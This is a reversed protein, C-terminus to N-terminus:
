GMWHKHLGHTQGPRKIGTIELAAPVKDAPIEAWEGERLFAGWTQFGEGVLARLKGRARHSNVRVLAYGPKLRPQDVAM